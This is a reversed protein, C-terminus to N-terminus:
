SQIFGITFILPLLIPKLPRILISSVLGNKKEDEIRHLAQIFTKHEFEFEHRPNSSQNPLPIFEDIQENSKSSVLLGCAENPCQQKAYKYFQDAVSQHIEM